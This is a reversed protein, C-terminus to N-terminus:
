SPKAATGAGQKARRETLEAVIKRVQAFAHDLGKDTEVVFDAQARKEADPMQRALIGDLRDQTMGERALVRARQVEPPASVVVVADMRAQGGMEFLLPIDLVVLQAGKAKAQDIFAREADAALPHVIAELRAFASADADVQHALAGRDVRGNEVSGPFADAIKAVAAGGREYLAHVTADADYVPVGLKAFLKATESKGMGISGTLGVLYPRKAV